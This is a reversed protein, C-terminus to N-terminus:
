ASFEIDWNKLKKEDGRNVLHNNISAVSPRVTACKAYEQWIKKQGKSEATEEDRGCKGKGNDRATMAEVDKVEERERRIFAFSFLLYHILCEGCTATHWCTWGHRRQTYMCIFAKLAHVPMM